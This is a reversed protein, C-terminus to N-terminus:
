KSRLRTHNSSPRLPSIQNDVYWEFALDSWEPNLMDILNCKKERRWKKLQKERVIADGIYQYEEFYVLKHCQYKESFGDNEGNKHEWMRRHLDNTVGIYLVKSISSLIYVFFQYQRKRYMENSM